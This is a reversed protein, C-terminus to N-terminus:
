GAAARKAPLVTQLLRSRMSEESWIRARETHFLALNSQVGGSRSVFAESPVFSGLRSGETSVRSEPSPEKKMTALATKLGHEKQAQCCSGTFSRQRFALVDQDCLVTVSHRSAKVSIRELTDIHDLIGIELM